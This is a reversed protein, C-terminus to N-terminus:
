APSCDSSSSSSFVQISRSSNFLLNEATLRTYLLDSFVIAAFPLVLGSAILSSFLNPSVKLNRLSEGLFNSTIEKFGLNM